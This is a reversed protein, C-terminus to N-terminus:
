SSKYNITLALLYLKDRYKIADTTSCAMTTRRRYTTASKFARCTFCHIFKRCGPAWKSASLEEAQWATSNNSWMSLCELLWPSASRNVCWIFFCEIKTYRRNNRQGRRASLTIKESQVSSTLRHNIFFLSNFVSAINHWHPVCACYLLTFVEPPTSTAPVTTLNLSETSSSPTLSSGAMLIFRWTIFAALLHTIFQIQIQITNTINCLSSDTRRDTEDAYESRSVLLLSAVRGTYM